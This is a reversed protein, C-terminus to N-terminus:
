APAPAGRRRRPPPPRPPREAVRRVRRLMFPPAPAGPAGRWVRHSRRRAAATRAVARADRDRAPARAGVARAVFSWAAAGRRPAPPRPWAAPDDASGRSRGLGATSAALVGGRTSPSARAAARGPRPAHVAAPPSSACRRRADARASCRPPLLARAFLLRPPPRRPGRPPAAMVASRRARVLLAYGSPADPRPVFAVSVGRRARPADDPAAPAGRRGAGSQRVGPRRRSRGAAFAEATIPVCASGAGTTPARRWPVGGIREVRAALALHGASPFVVRDVSRSAHALEPAEDRRQVAAWHSRRPVDVSEVEGRPTTRPLAVLRGRADANDVAAFAGGSALRRPLFERCVAGRGATPRHQAWVLPDAAAAYLADFDDGRLPRLTLLEGVLTPQLDFPPM